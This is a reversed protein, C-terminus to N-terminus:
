DKVLLPLYAGPSLTPDPQQLAIIAQAIERRYRHYDEPEFYAIIGRAEPGYRNLDARLSELLAQAAAVADAKAPNGQM